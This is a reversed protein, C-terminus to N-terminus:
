RDVGDRPPNARIMAEFTPHLEADCSFRSPDVRGLAVALRLSANTPGAALVFGVCVLEHPDEVAGRHNLHCEMAKAEFPAGPNKDAMAVMQDFHLPPVEPTHDRGIAWADVGVRWPCHQCPQREKKKEFM